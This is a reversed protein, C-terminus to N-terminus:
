IIYYLDNRDKIKERLEQENMIYNGNQFYMEDLYHNYKIYGQWGPVRGWNYYKGNRIIPKLEQLTM